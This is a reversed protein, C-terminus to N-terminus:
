GNTNEQPPTIDPYAAEVEERTYRSDLAMAIFGEIEALSLRKEPVFPKIKDKIQATILPLMRQAIYHGLEDALMQPMPGTRFDDSDPNCALEFPFMRRTVFQEGNHTLDVRVSIEGHHGEPSGEGIEIVVPWDTESPRRVAFGRSELLRVAKELEWDKWDM